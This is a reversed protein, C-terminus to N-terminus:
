HDHLFEATNLLAFLLDEFGERPSPAAAVAALAAASEASSPPRGLAALYAVRIRAALPAGDGNALRAALGSGSAAARLGDDILAGNMLLLSQQITRQCADAPDPQPEDGRLQRLFAARAKERPDLRTPDLLGLPLDNEWKEMKARLDPDVAAMLEPPRSLPGSAHARWASTVRDLLAYTARAEANEAFSAGTSRVVSDFLQHANLQRVRRRAFADDAPLSPHASSLRYARTRLLIRYLRGVDFGSRAFDSALLDLAEPHSPPNAPGFDDVPEVFGRGFLWSVVRNVFTRTLAARGQTLVLDALAQQRNGGELSAIPPGGLFRPAVVLPRPADPARPAEGPGMVPSASKAEDSVSLPPSTAGTDAAMSEIAALSYEATAPDFTIERGPVTVARLSLAGMADSLGMKRINTTERSLDSFFAAFAHFDAPTYPASPHDHCQACQIQTGLFVRATVGALEAPSAGWRLVFNTPGYWERPHRATLLEAALRDWGLGDALAREIWLRLVEPRTGPSPETGLLTDTLLRAVYRRHEPSAVLAEIRAADKGPDADALFAEADEAAPITGVADLFLRRLFEADTARAAPAVGRATWGAEFLADLRAAVSEASPLNKERDRDGDRQNAPLPAGAGGCGAAIVIAVLGAGLVAFPRVM